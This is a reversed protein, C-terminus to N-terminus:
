PRVLRPVERELETIRAAEATTTGPRDGADVEAQTVWNRLTEPNIGLQESLLEVGCGGSAQSWAWPSVKPSGTTGMGPVRLAARTASFAALM